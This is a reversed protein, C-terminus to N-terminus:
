DIRTQEREAQRKETDDSQYFKLCSKKEAKGLFLIQYQAISKM